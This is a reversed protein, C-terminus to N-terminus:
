YFYGDISPKRGEINTKDFVCNDDTGAPRPTRHSNLKKEEEKGKEAEM